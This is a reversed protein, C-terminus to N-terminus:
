TIPQLSQAARKAFQQAGQLDAQEQAQESNAHAANQQRILEFLRAHRPGDQLTERKM